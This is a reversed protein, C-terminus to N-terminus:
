KELDMPSVCTEDKPLISAVMIREVTPGLIKLAILVNSCWSSYNSGDLALPEFPVECTASMTSSWTTLSSDSCWARIGISLVKIDGLPPPTFLRSSWILSKRGSCKLWRHHHDTLCQVECTVSTLGTYCLVGAFVVEIVEQSRARVSSPTHGKYIIVLLTILGACVLLVGLYM